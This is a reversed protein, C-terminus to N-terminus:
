TPFLRVQELRICQHPLVMISSLLTSFTTVSDIMVITMRTEPKVSECHNEPPEEITIDVSVSGSGGNSSISITGSYYGDMSGTNIVSVTITDHEGTSSGSTPSVSIWDISESISYTLTQGGSNWIDFTDSGTWGQDHTGFNITTPSYSLTPPAYVVINGM